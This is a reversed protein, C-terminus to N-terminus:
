ETPFLIDKVIALIEPLHSWLRSWVSGAGVVGPPTSAAAICSDLAAALDADPASAGVTPKTGLEGFVDGLAAAAAYDDGGTIASELNTLASKLKAHSM